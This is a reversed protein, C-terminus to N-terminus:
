NSYGIRTNITPWNAGPENQWIGQQNTQPNNTIKQPGWPLNNISHNGNNVWVSMKGTNVQDTINFGPSFHMLADNKCGNGNNFHENNQNFEPYVNNVQPNLPVEQNTKWASSYLENAFPKASGDKGGYTKGMFTPKNVSEPVLGMFPNDKTLGLINVQPSGNIGLNKTNHNITPLKSEVNNYHDPRVYSEFAPIPANKKTEGTAYISLPNNRLNQILVPDTSRYDVFQSKKYNQRQNGHSYESQINQSPVQLNTSNLTGPGYTSSAIEKTGRTQVIGISSIVDKNKGPLADPIINSRGPGHFYDWVEGAARLGNSAMGGKRWKSELGKPVM